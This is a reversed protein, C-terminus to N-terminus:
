TWLLQRSKSSHLVHQFTHAEPLVPVTEWESPSGESRNWAETNSSWMTMRDSKRQPSTENHIRAQGSSTRYTPCTVFESIRQLCEGSHRGGTLAASEVRWPTEMSKEMTSHYNVDGDAIYWPEGKGCRQHCIIKKEFVNRGSTSEKLFTV